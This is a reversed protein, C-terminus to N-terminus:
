MLNVTYVTDSQGLPNPWMKLIGIIVKIIQINSDFKMLTKSVFYGCNEVSKMVSIYIEVSSYFDNSSLVSM